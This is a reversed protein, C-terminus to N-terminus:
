RGIGLDRGRSREREREQEHERKREIDRALERDREPERERERVRGRELRRSLRERDRELDDRDLYLDRREGTLAVHTHAIGNDNHFSYVGRVSPRDQTFERLYRETERELEAQSVDVEPDPSIRVEREFRHRESKEIFSERERDTVPRGASNRLGRGKEIYNLLAGAGSRQYNTNLYM